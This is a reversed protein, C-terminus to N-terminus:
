IVDQVRVTATLTCPLSEIITLLPDLSRSTDPLLPIDLVDSYYDLHDADFVLECTQEASGPFLDAGHDDLHRYTGTLSFYEGFFGLSLAQTFTAQLRTTVSLENLHRDVGGPAHLAEDATVPGLGDRNRAQNILTTIHPDPIRVVLDSRVGDSLLAAYNYNREHSSTM